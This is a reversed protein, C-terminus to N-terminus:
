RKGNPELRGALAERVGDYGVGYRRRMHEDVSDSSRHLAAAVEGVDMGLMASELVFLYSDPGYAGRKGGSYVGIKSLRCSISGYSRGVMRAIEGVPYGADALEAIRADQVADWPDGIACGSM